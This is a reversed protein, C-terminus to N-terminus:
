EKPRVEPIPMYYAQTEEEGIIFRGKIEPPLETARDNDLVIRSAAPDAFYGCVRWLLNNKIQGDLVNADPRIFGMLIHVGAARSIRALTRLSHDIEAYMEKETKDKPKVDLLEAAEDIVLLWPLFYGKGSTNYETINSVGAEKFKALRNQVEITLGLLLQRADESNSIVFPGYEPDLDLYKQAEREVSVYDGGNKFDLVQVNWKKIIAQHIICRLMNTKGASSAVACLGHPLALADWIVKGTYCEGIAFKDGSEMFDDEWKIFSPLFEQILYIDMIRIEEMSQEMKYVKKRYFMELEPQAKEWEICPIRSKFRIRKLYANVTFQGLYRPLKGDYGRLDISSFFQQRRTHPISLITVILVLLLPLWLWRFFVQM